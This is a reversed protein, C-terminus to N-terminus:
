NRLCCREEPRDGGGRHNFRGMERLPQPDVPAKGLKARVEFNYGHDKEHLEDALLTTEECSIWTNWPTPGGACNRVTGALSLYHRELRRRKTDYLLTTTGGLSPGSGTGGDYLLYPPLRELEENGHGFPGNSATIEAVEHNRVLITKGSPGPFAAMGDHGAPVYFGDDMRDFRRSIIQYSFGAPLDLIQDPDPILDGFGYPINPSKSAAYGHQTLLNQLGTFGLSIASATRLFHRRSLNM